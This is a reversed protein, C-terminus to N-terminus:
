VYEYKVGLMDLAQCLLEDPHVDFLCEDADDSYSVVSDNDIILPQTEKAEVYEM